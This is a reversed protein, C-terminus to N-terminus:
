QQVIYPVNGTSKAKFSWQNEDVTEDSWQLYKNGNSDSLM